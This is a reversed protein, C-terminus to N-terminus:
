WFGIFEESSMWLGWDMPALAFRNEPVDWLLPGKDTELKLWSPVEIFIPKPLYSKSALFYKGWKQNSPTQFCSFLIWFLSSSTSHVGNSHPKYGILYQHSRITQRIQMLGRSVGKKRSSRDVTHEQKPNHQLQWSFPSICM